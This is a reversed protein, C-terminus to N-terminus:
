KVATCYRQWSEIGTSIHHPAGVRWDIEAMLSSLEGYQLSVQLLYQQKVLKKWITSIHRLQSSIAQCLQAITSLHGNKQMM